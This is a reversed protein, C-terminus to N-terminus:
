AANSAADMSVKRPLHIGPDLGLIVISLSMAPGILYGGQLFVEFAVDDGSIRLLTTTGDALM